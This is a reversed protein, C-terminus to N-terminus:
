SAVATTASTRGRLRALDVNHKRKVHQMLNTTSDSKAYAVDTFCLKCKAKDTPSGDRFGFYQWVKSKLKKPADSLKLKDAVVQGAM